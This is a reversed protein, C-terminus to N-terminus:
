EDVKGENTGCYCCPEGDYWHNCHLDDSSDPCFDDFDEDVDDDFFCGEVVEDILDDDEEFLAM